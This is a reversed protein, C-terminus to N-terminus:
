FIAPSKLGSSKLKLIWGLFKLCLLFLDGTSSSTTTATSFDSKSSVKMLGYEDASALPGNM